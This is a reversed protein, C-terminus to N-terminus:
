PTRVADAYMVIKRSLRSKALKSSVDGSYNAYTGLNISM